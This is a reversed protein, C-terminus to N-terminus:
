VGINNDSCAEARRQREWPVQLFDRSGKAFTVLVKPSFDWPSLIAAEAGDAISIGMHCGNCPNLTSICRYLWMCHRIADLKVEFLANFTFSLDFENGADWFDSKPSQLYDSDADSASVTM